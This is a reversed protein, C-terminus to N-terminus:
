FGCRRGDNWLHTGISMGFTIPQNRFCGGGKNELYSSTLIKAEMVTTGEKDHERLVESFDATAFSLYDKFRRKYGVIQDILADRTHVPFEKLIGQDDESYYSIIPDLKGNEDYDGAYLRIPMEQSATLYSNKGFNGLVYDMDGDNDFDGSTISNWWGSTDPLGTKDFRSLVGKNNIFFQVQTWEGVVILDLWGDGNFDTWIADSVMGLKRMADPTKDKLAGKENELLMSQPSQPYNGPYIKGGVFLDLDGDRDYDAGRVTGGSIPKGQLDSSRVFNSNNNIYLRDEYLPSNSKYEVGGSVVYLDLDTDGDIDFLLMGMDEYIADEDLISHREFRGDKQIFLSAAVGAAGGIILDDKGDNDVDGVAMAPGEKSYMKLMLPNDKFDTYSNESHKFQLLLSDAANHFLKPQVSPNKFHGNVADKQVVKLTQNAAVETVTHFTGDPWVVKLSDAKKTTGMGFHITQGMSSLYGRVNSHYYTQVTEGIYLKLKAGLSNNNKGRGQLEVKLFTHNNSEPNVSRNEYLFAEQSLNNVVLDLDGDNDLDAFAAGHSFSPEDLGSKKTHDELELTGRNLYLFNHSKIPRLNSLQELQYAVKHEKTGFKLNEQIGLSFDLDTLDKKYGNTIYLDLSGSNDFDAWLPAWSWDTSYIGSLCGIESFSLNGHADPGNNIQLTNRIHQDIYGLDSRYEFLDYNLPTFMLKRRRNSRPLMDVVTIDVLGDNNIDALDVGMGNMSAHRLYDRGKEEFGGNKNNIYILDNSIFDNSVYVDPWGDNNFDNVAVGLSYGENVIGVKESVESFTDDGNNIYFRDRTFNNSKLNREITENRNNMLQSNVALFLDLDDDKDFDFFFQRHPM